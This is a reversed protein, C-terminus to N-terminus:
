VRIGHPVFRQDAATRRRPSFAGTATGSAPCPRLEQALCHEILNSGALAVGDLDDVAFACAQADVGVAIVVRQASGLGRSM